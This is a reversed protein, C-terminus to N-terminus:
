KVVIISNKGGFGDDATAPNGEDQKWTTGDVLFKYAYSGPPMKVTATWSGDANQTMKNVTVGWSNFDGCVSVGTRASGAFTFVVGAATVRPAQPKVGAALPKVAGAPRAASAAPAAAAGGGVVVVSNKGGYGDDVFETAADDSKWNTGDVVFKYPYRGPALAKTLTWTGDAQKKMPDASTSWSNFEGALNVSGGPGKYRFTVGDGSAAPAAAAAPAAPAAAATGGVVVLSNKGGYGDDVFEAAADDQKWNTGDVVFKYQYRGPALAKTLTWTGDAQKKMPDASTSWSNFEGAVNVSGGTGTYRFTVGDGSVAPGGAAAPKAAAAAVAAGTVVVLSNKGGYGDDAFEPANDDAKWDGGNLVFKYQYRGPALAKTLTWTGNAQKQMPDASTSWSNFEGAVNVSSAEGAYVFQVGSETVATAKGNAKAKAAPAAAAVPAATDWAAPAVGGRWGGACGSLATTLLLACLTRLTIKM